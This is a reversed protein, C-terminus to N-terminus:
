ISEYLKEIVREYKDALNKRRLKFTPTLMNNAITWENSECAVARIKEYGPLKQEVAIQNLQEVIYNCLEKSKCAVEFEEQTIKDKKLFTAVKKIKPVVIAVLCPRMADGYIFIQNVIKALEYTQSILDAAVYEGHCLKFISRIRDVIMMYGEKDWKGVDGTHIWNTGNKGGDGNRNKDNIFLDKTAQEDNLYGRCVCQGSILIEGCEPDDYDDLPELRIEANMLPGGVTGPKSHKIEMPNCIVGSGVESLGYGVGMSCGTAYMIFEHVWPNM